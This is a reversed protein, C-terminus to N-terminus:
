LRRARLKRLQAGCYHSCTVPQERYKSRWFDGGCIPCIVRRRYRNARDAVRRSCRRSCYRKDKQWAEAEEGCEECVITFSVAQAWIDRAHQRHWDRGEDSQHWQTAFPRISALHELWEPSTRDTNPHKAAHASPTLAELNSPDNNDTDGDIHHIHHGDPIPGHSDKFIERHLAERDSGRSPVYYVRNARQEANPNRKYVTGRYAITDM